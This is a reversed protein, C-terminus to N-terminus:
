NGNGAGPHRVVQKDREGNLYREMDDLSGEAVPDDLSSYKVNLRYLGYDTARPDRTRSRHLELTQRDAERRLRNERVKDDTM